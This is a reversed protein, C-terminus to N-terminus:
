WFAMKQYFVWSQIQLFNKEPIGRLYYEKQRVHTFLAQFYSDYFCPGIISNSFFTASYRLFNARALWAQDTFGTAREM